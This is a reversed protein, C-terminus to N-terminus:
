CFAAPSRAGILEEVGVGVRSVNRGAAVIRDESGVTLGPMDLQEEQPASKVQPRRSVLSGQQHAANGGNCLM